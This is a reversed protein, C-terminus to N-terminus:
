KQLNLQQAAPRIYSINTLPVICSITTGKGPLSSIVLQGKLNEARFQMNRLGSGANKLALENKGIGIGNDQIELLLNGDHLQLRIDIRTSQAHKLINNVAEKAILLLNKRTNIDTVRAELVEDIHYFCQTSQLDMLEFYFDKIQGSLSKQQQVGTNIAWIMDGMNEIVLKLDNVMNSLSLRTKPIDELVNKQAMIANLHISSLSAGLEDHLDASIMARQQSLELQKQVEMQINELQYLRSKYLLGFNFFLFLVMVAAIIIQYNWLQFHANELTLYQFISVRVIVMSILTGLMMITNLAKRRTGLYIVFMLNFPMSFLYMCKFVLVSIHQLSFMGLVFISLGSVFVVREAILFARNLRPYFLALDMFFRVFRYYMGFSLFVLGFLSSFTKEGSFLNFPNYSPFIRLVFFVTLCVFALTFYLFEKKRFLMFNMLIYILQLFIVGLSFFIFNM